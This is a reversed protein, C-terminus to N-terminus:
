FTYLMTLLKGTELVLIGEASLEEFRDYLEESFGPIMGRFFRQQHEGLLDVLEDTM